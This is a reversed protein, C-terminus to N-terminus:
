CLAILTYSFHCTPVGAKCNVDCLDYTRATYRGGYKVIPLVGIKEELLGNIPMTYSLFAEQGVIRIRKIFSRVFARKETLESEELVRRLDEVYSSVVEPSALEVRRDSLQNEIQIRQAQLKEQRQRLDHIRPALDALPIKGTEVADYLRELRHNTNTIDELVTEFENKSQKSGIDMEQNVLGVLRTLHEETLIKERITRTVLCFM